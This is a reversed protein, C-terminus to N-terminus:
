GKGEGEGEGERGGEGGERWSVMAGAQAASILNWGAVLRDTQLKERYFSKMHEYLYLYL